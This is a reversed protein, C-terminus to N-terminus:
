YRPVLFKWDTRSLVLYCRLARCIESDSPTQGSEAKGQRSLRHDTKSITEHSTLIRVIQQLVLSIKTSHGWHIVDGTLGGRFWVQTGKTPQQSKTSHTQWNPILNDSKPDFNNHSGAWKALQNKLNYEKSLNTYSLTHTCDFHKLYAQPCFDSEFQCSVILVLCSLMQM